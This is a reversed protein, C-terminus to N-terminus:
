ILGRPASVSINNPFGILNQTATAGVPLPLSWGHTQGVSVACNDFSCLNSFVQQIGLMRIVATLCNEENGEFETAATPVRKGISQPLECQRSIYSFAHFSHM